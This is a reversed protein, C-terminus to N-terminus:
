ASGRADDHRFALPWAARALADDFVAQRHEITQALGVDGGGVDGALHADARPIEVIIEAVLVLNDALKECSELATEVREEVSADAAGDIDLVKPKKQVKHEFRHPFVPKKIAIEVFYKRAAALQRRM